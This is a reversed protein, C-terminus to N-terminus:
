KIVEDYYKWSFGGATKRKNNCCSSIHGNNINTKLTAQKISDFVNIIIDDKIQIVKKTRKGIKINSMKQRSELTAKKGTNALKIKLRTEATTIHGTRVKSMKLKTKDSHVMGKKSKGINDCTQQSRKKGINSLKIKEITEISHKTGKRPNIYGNNYRNKWYNSLNIKLENSLSTNQGGGSTHNTLDCNCLKFYNIWFMEMSNIMHNDYLGIIKMIPKINKCMLSKIWSVKHSKGTDKIHQRFRNTLNNTQGIYRIKNNTPDVLAYIYKM